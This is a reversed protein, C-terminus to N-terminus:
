DAPAVVGAWGQLARLQNAYGDAIGALDSYRDACQALARGIPGGDGGSATATDGGARAALAKRLGVVADAATNRDAALVALRDQYDQAVAEVDRMMRKTQALEAAQAAAVLASAKQAAIAGQWAWGAWFAGGLAAALAILRWRRLVGWIM